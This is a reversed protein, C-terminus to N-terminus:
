NLNFNVYSTAFHGHSDGSDEFVSKLKDYSDRMDDRSSEQRGEQSGSNPSLKSSYYGGSSGKLTTSGLYSPRSDPGSETLSDFSSKLSDAYSSGVSSYSSGRFYGGSSSKLSSKSSDISSDSEQRGQSDSLSSYFSKLSSAYDGLGSYAANSKSGAQIEYAPKIDKFSSYGGQKLEGPGGFSAIEGSAESSGFSDRLKAQLSDLKGASEEFAKLVDEAAKDDSAYAGLGLKVDEEKYREPEGGQYSYEPEDPKIYSPVNVSKFVAVPIRVPGSVKEGYAPYRTPKEASYPRFFPFTVPKEAPLGVPMKAEAPFFSSGPVKKEATPYPVKRTISFSKVRGGEYGRLGRSHEQPRTASGVAAIVVVTAWTLRM